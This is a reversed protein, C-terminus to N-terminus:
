RTSTSIGETQKPTEFVEEENADDWEWAEFSEPGRYGCASCVEAQLSGQEGDREAIDFDTAL